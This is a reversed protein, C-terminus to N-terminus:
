LNQPEKGRIKPIHIAGSFKKLMKKQLKTTSRKWSEAIEDEPWAEAYYNRPFEAVNNYIALKMPLIM